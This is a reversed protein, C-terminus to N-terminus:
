DKNKWFIDAVGCTLFRKDDFNLGFEVVDGNSLEVKKWCTTDDIVKVIEIMPLEKLYKGFCRIKWTNVNVVGVGKINRLNKLKARKGCSFNTKCLTSM